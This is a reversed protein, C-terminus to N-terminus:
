ENSDKNKLKLKLDDIQKQLNDIQSNLKTDKAERNVLSYGEKM